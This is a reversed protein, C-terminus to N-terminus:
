GRKQLASRYTTLLRTQDEQPLDALSAEPRSKTFDYKTVVRQVKTGSFIVVEEKEGTMLNNVEMYDGKQDGYDIDRDLSVRIGEFDMLETM